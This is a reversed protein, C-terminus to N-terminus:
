DNHAAFRKFNKKLMEFEHNFAHVQDRVATHQWLEEAEPDEMKSLKREHLIIQLRLEDILRLKKMFIDRYEDVLEVISLQHHPLSTM